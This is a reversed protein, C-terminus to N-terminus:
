ELSDRARPDVWAYLLDALFYSLLTALATLAFIAMVFPVDNSTVATLTERGLGRILFVEEVVVSGVLLAPLVGTAVTILPLLSNRFAHRWVAERYSLGKALATRLFPRQMQEQLTSRLLRSIQAFGAYAYAILPLPMQTLYQQWSLRGPHLNAQLFGGGAMEPDAFYSFLLTGLWFTPIVELGFGLIASARDGLSGPYMAAFVGIPIGTLFILLTGLGALTITWPLLERITAGVSQTSRYSRGLDGRLMRVLWHHYQNDLGHWYIIPVFNRWRAPRQRMAGFSAEVRRLAARWPGDHKRAAQALDSLRAEIRPMEGMTALGLIPSVVSMPLDGALRQEDAIIMLRRLDQRYTEVLAWDGVQFLLRRLTPRLHQSQRHFDKPIAWTTVRLYFRPLDLQHEARKQALCADFVEYSTGPAMYHCQEMFNALPDPALATLMFTLVTILWLTPWLWLFRRLLFRPM